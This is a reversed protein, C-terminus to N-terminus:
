PALRGPYRPFTTVERISNEGLLWTMLRGVGLGMGSTQAHGFTRLDIYERYDKEPLGQERLSARLAAADSVRVGSGIIEGVGPVEVDCGMVYSPDQPHPRMYFSKFERPFNVLFTIKGIQDIMQREQAEPIDDRDGFHVKREFDKYIDHKRCYEIAERHTLICIGGDTCLDNYWKKIKLMVDKGDPLDVVYPEARPIFHSLLHNLMLKLKGLHDELTFMNKWEAEAHLFETLHRRTHSKEARFSPYICYTDGVAPLAYELYFQSSQTLYADVEGTIAAPYKLKFLTAGGECQNSVFCPPIIETCQMQDFAYRLSSLLISQLKVYLAYRQRRLFLHRDHIRLEPGADDPCRSRFSVDSPGVVEVATAIVEFPRYSYSGEKIKVVTGDVRVYAEPLHTPNPPGSVVVQVRNITGPGDRVHLFAHKKFSQVSDIWGYFSILAGSISLREITTM